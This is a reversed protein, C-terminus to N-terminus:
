FLLGPLGDISLQNNKQRYAALEEPSKQETWKNKL